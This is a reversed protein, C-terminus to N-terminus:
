VGIAIWAVDVWPTTADAPAVNGSTTPKRNVVRISGAIPASGQDGITANSWMHTLTPTAVLNAVAAVVTTLGTVVDESGDTPTFVGRAIKYGAAVGALPTTVAAALEARIDTGAIEFLAGALLDISGGSKVSIEGSSNVDIGGAGALKVKGGSEIDITGGSEISIEGSTAVEIGDTGALKLKGGSEVDITGGSEISIEGSSKVRVGDTGVIDLRGGSLVDILAGSEIELIAGGQKFRILVNEGKRAM